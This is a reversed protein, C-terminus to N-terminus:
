GDARGMNTHPGHTGGGAAAKRQHGLSDTQGAHGFGRHHDDVHLAAAGRGSQGRLGLLGVQILQETGRLAVIRTGDQRWGIHYVTWRWLEKARGGGVYRQDAPARGLADDTLGDSRQSVLADRRIVQLDPVQDWEMFGFHPVDQLRAPMRQHYLIVVGALQRTVNPGLRAKGHVALNQFIVPFGKLGVVDNFAYLLYEM